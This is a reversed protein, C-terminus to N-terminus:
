FISVSITKRRILGTRSSRNWYGGCDVCEIVVKRKMRSKQHKAAISERPVDRGQGFIRSGGEGAVDCVAARKNCSLCFYKLIGPKADCDGLLPPFHRHRLAGTRACCAVFSVACRIQGSGNFRQVNSRGLRACEALSSVPRSQPM